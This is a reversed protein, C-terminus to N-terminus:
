GGRFYHITKRVRRKFLSHDEEGEELVILWRGWGGRICHVRKGEGDGLSQAIDETKGNM